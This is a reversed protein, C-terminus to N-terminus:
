NPAEEIGNCTLVSDYIMQLQENEDLVSDPMMEADPLNAIM